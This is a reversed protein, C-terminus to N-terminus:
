ATKGTEQKLLDDLYKPSLNFQSVMLNVTPLGKEEANGQEFYKNLYENFISDLHSLIISKSFEDPNDHYEKEMKHYLSRM